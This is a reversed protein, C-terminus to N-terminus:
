ILSCLMIMALGVIPAQHCGSIAQGFMLIVVGVAFVINRDSTDQINCLSQRPTSKGSASGQPMTNQSTTYNM